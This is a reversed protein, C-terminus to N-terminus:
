TSNRSGLLGEWLLAWQELAQPSGLRLDPDQHQHDGNQPVQYLKRLGSVM